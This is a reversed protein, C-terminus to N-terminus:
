KWWPARWLSLELSVAFCVGALIKRGLTPETFMMVLAISTVAWGISHSVIEATKSEMSKTRWTPIRALGWSDVFERM